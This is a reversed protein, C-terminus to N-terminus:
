EWPSRRFAAALADILARVRAPPRRGAAHVAYIGVPRRLFAELVSVLRGEALDEAVMFRPLVCLGLGAAAAERIMTGNSAAFNSKVAIAVPGEAGRFRWEDEARLHTYRLCNHHLLDEPASPRGRRELYEPSGCVVLRAEALRRAVLSSDTLKTIRIAVDVREDLLDVLRDNLLLEVSTEPNRALFAAVAPALYMQGFTVPANVRILGRLAGGPEDALQAAGEAEAVMRACRAYFSLGEDTVSIKRTTRHLLKLGLREELRTIRTSVASKALGLREAAGTFSRAEVVRAFLLMSVLDDPTPNM